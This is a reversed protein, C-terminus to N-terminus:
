QAVAQANSVNAQEVQQRRESEAVLEEFEERNRFFSAPLIDRMLKYVLDYTNAVYIINPDIPALAQLTQTFIQVNNLDTNILDQTFQGIFRMGISKDFNLSIYSDVSRNRKFNYKIFGKLLNAMFSSFFPEITQAFISNNIQANRQADIATTQGVGFTAIQDLMYASKVQQRWMELYVGGGSARAPTPTAILENAKILMPDYIGSCGAMDHINGLDSVFSAIFAPPNLETKQARFVHCSISSAKELANLAILGCGVPIEPMNKYFPIELEVIMPINDTLIEGMEEYFNNSDLKYYFKVAFYKGNSIKNNIKLADSLEGKKGFIYYHSGNDVIYFKEKKIPTRGRGVYMPHINEYFGNNNTVYGIGFDIANKLALSICNNFNFNENILKQLIGEATAIESSSLKGEEGEKQNLFVTGGRFGWLYSLLASHLGNSASLLVKCDGRVDNIIKSDLDFSSFFGANSFNTSNWNAQLLNNLYGSNQFFLNWQNFHYYDDFLPFFRYWMSNKISAIKNRNLTATQM